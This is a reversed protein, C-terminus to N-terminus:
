TIKIKGVLKCVEECKDSKRTVGHANEPYLVINSGERMTIDMTRQNGGWFMVDAEENYKARLSLRSIDAIHMIEKGSKILQIDVYKKHSELKLKDSPVYSLLTYYFNDDVMYKEGIEMESIDLKELYNQAKKIREELDSAEKVPNTLWEAFERLAGEGARDTSIFDSIAKVEKVADQPCGIIGGAEKIPMMCKMDLIDDGFYACLKFNEEGVINNLADLKDMKGQHVETIGLEACRKEVISSTRATIVIPKIEKSKLIHNIAYGDKVSFAKMCEGDNGIYIKGDTLTGDVDMIIFKIAM